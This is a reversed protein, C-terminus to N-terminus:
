SSSAPNGSSPIAGPVRQSSTGILQVHGSHPARLSSKSITWIQAFAQVDHLSFGRRMSPNGEHPAGQKRTPLLRSTRSTEQNTAYITENKAVHM